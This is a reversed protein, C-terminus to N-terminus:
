QHEGDDTVEELNGVDSSAASHIELLTQNAQKVKDKFSDPAADHTAPNGHKVLEDHTHGLLQFDADLMIPLKAGYEGAVINQFISDEMEVLQGYRNFQITPVAPDNSLLAADNSGVFRVKVKAM